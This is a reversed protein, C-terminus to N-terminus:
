CAAMFWSGDRTRGGLTSLLGSGFVALRSSFVDHALSWTLSPLAYAIFSEPEEYIM